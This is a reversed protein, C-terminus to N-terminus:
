NEKQEQANDFGFFFVPRFSNLDKIEHDVFVRQLFKTRLCVGKIKINSGNGEKWYCTQINENLRPKTNIDNVYDAHYQM